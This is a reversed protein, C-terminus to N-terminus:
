QDPQRARHHRQVRAQTRRKRTVRNNMARQQPPVILKTKKEQKQQKRYKELERKKEERNKKKKKKIIRRGGLDGRKGEGGRKRERDGDHGGAAAGQQDRLEGAGAYHHIGRTPHQALPRAGEGGREVRGATAVHEGRARRVEHLGESRFRRRSRFLTTYPFLTSRPPRRIM